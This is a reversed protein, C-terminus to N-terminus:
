HQRRGPVFNLSVSYCCPRDTSNMLMFYLIDSQKTVVLQMLMKALSVTWLCWEYRVDYYLFLPYLSPMFKTSAFLESVPLLAICFADQDLHQRWGCSEREPSRAWGFTLRSHLGTLCFQCDTHLYMFGIWRIGYTRRINLCEWLYAKLGYELGDIWAWSSMGWIVHDTIDVEEENQKGFTMAVERGVEM